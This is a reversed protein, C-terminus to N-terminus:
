GTTSHGVAWDSDTEFYLEGARDALGDFTVGMSATQALYVICDDCLVSLEETPFTLARALRGITAGVLPPTPVCVHRRTFSLAWRAM